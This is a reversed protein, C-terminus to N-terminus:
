PVSILQAVAQVKNLERVLRQAQHKYLTVALVGPLHHMLETATNISYGSIRAIARAGEFVADRTLAKDVQVQWCRPLLQGQEIRRLSDITVLVVLRDGAELRIDDSPMLKPKQYLIPIMRCGYAVEALLLGFLPEEPRITYEAVLITEDNLRFLDLINEGFAAAAFAEAVLAYVCLVKAHPLIRALNDSFRPDTYIM